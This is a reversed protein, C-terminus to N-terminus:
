AQWNNTHNIDWVMRSPREHGRTAHRWWFPPLGDVSGAAPLDNTITEGREELEAEQADLRAMEEDWSEHRLKSLEDLRELTDPYIARMEPSWTRYIDAGRKYKEYRMHAIGGEQYPYLFPQHHKNMWWEEEGAKVLATAKVMDTESVHKDFRARLMVMEWIMVEQSRAHWAWEWTTRIAKKYLQLVKSRHSSYKYHENFPIVRTQYNGVGTTYHSNGNQSTSLARTTSTLSFRLARFM